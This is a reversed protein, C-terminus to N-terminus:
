GARPDPGWRNPGITGPVALFWACPALLLDGAVQLWHFREMEWEAVESWDMQLYEVYDPALLALGGVLLWAWRGSRDQDHLRRVMGTVLMIAFGLRMAAEIVATAEWPLWNSLIRAVFNPFLLLLLLLSGTELRRGRGSLDGLRAWDLGDDTDSGDVYGM